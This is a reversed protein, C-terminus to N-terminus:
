VAYSPKPMKGCSISVSSKTDAEPDRREVADAACFLPMASNGRLIPASGSPPYGNEPGAIDFGAVGDHRYSLALEAIDQTPEAEGCPPSWNAYRSRAVWANSVGGGGRGPRRTRSGVAENTRDVWGESAARQRGARRATSSAM